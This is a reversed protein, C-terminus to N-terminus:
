IARAADPLYMWATVDLWWVKCNDDHDFYFPEIWDSTDEDRDLMYTVHQTHGKIKVVIPQGYKPREAAPDRWQDEMASQYAEWRVSLFLAYMNGTLDKPDNSLYMKLEECYTVGEKPAGYRAEFRDRLTM